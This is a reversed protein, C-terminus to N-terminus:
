HFKGRGASWWACHDGISSAGREAGGHLLKWKVEKSVEGGPARGSLPRRKVEENLSEM